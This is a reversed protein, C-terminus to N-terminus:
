PKPGLCISYLYYPDKSGLGKIELIADPGHEKADAYCM